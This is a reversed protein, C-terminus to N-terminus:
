DAGGAADDGQGAHLEVQDERPGRGGQPHFAWGDLCRRAGPLHSLLIAFCHPMGEYEELVVTVDDRHLKGAAYRDEDRLLEWGTCIYVPPAGAWSRVMLLTVLPHLVLGDDVYIHERPPVTPWAPCPPRMSETGLGHPPPPPLYDFGAKTMYSPSSHTLDMWPSNVAVGAPLPVDREAGFWAIKIKQRGLELITQLLALSLNGGASHVRTSTDAPTESLCVITSLALSVQRRCISYAGPARSQPVGGPPPYLLALYSALGDLLAAPFPNQPALRYRVSYCRGATLKALRKTTPRHTAPDLLWYAGGHFYLVTVPTKCEATM